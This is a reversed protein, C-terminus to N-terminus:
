KVDINLCHITSNYDRKYREVIKTICQMYIVIKKMSINRVNFVKYFEKILMSTIARLLLNKSSKYNLLFCYLINHPIFYMIVIEKMNLLMKKM